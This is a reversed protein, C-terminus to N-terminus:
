HRAARCQATRRRRRSGRPLHRSAHPSRARARCSRDRSGPRVIIRRLTLAEVPLAAPKGFAAATGAKVRPAAAAKLMPQRVVIKRETSNQVRFQGRVDRPPGVLLLPEAADPMLAMESRHVGGYAGKSSECGSGRIAPLALYGGPSSPSTPPAANQQAPWEISPKKPLDQMVTRSDGGFNVGFFEMGMWTLGLHYSFPQHIEGQPLKSSSNLCVDLAVPKLDVSM